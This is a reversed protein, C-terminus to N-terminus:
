ELSLTAMLSLRAVLTQEQVRYPNLRKVGLTVRLVRGKRSARKREFSLTEARVEIQNRLVLRRGNAAVKKDKESSFSPTRVKRVASIEKPLAM